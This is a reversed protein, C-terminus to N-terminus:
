IIPINKEKNYNHIIFETFEKLEFGDHLLIRIQNLDEIPEGWFLTYLEQFRADTM